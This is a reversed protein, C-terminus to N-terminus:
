YPPAHRALVRPFLTHTLFLDIRHGLTRVQPKGWVARQVHLTGLRLVAECFQVFTVVSTLEGEVHRDWITLGEVHHEGEGCEFVTTGDEDRQVPM